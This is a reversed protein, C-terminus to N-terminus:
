DLTCLRSQARIGSGSSLAHGIFGVVKGPGGLGDRNILPVAAGTVLMGDCVQNAIESVQSFFAAKVKDFLDPSPNPMPVRFKMSFVAVIKPRIRCDLDRDVGSLQELRNEAVQKIRDARPATQRQEKGPNASIPSQCFVELRVAGGASSATFRRDQGKIERTM